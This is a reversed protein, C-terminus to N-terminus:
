ILYVNALQTYLNLVHNEDLGTERQKYFGLHSVTFHSDIYHQKNNDQTMRITLEHEDDNGIQQFVYLDKSLIAFFNISIRHGTPHKIVSDKINYTKNLWEQYQNTFYEHLRQCVKGDAWLKGCFTDYPFTDIYTPLVGNNQQHYACVGNNVISPFALIETKNELRRRIFQAFEKTDIFVIDDDCKIIVNNPYRKTTYHNYYELWKNKNHVTYLKVYNHTNEDEKQSKEIFWWINNKNWSAVQLKLSSVDKHENVNILLSLICKSTGNDYVNITNNDNFELTIGVSKHLSCIQGEFCTTTIGQKCHRIVSKTNGWGGLCIEAVDKNTKADTLLIHADHEGKFKIVKKNGKVILMNTDVYDYSNTKIYSESMDLTPETFSDYFASKFNNMLWEEDKLNRTFNWIHFEHIDGQSYLKDVYRLLVEMNKKRGAFCTIIVKPQQENM